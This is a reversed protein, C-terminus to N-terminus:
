IKKKETSLRLFGLHMKHWLVRLESWGRKLHKCGTLNAAALLADTYPTDHKLCLHCRPNKKLPNLHLSVTKEVGVKCRPHLTAALQMGQLCLRCSVRPDPHGGWGWHLWHFLAAWHPGRPLPWPCPCGPPRPLAPSGLLRLQLSQSPVWPMSLYGPRPSNSPKQPAASKVKRTVLSPAGPDQTRHPHSLERAKPFGGTLCPWGPNVELLRNQRM